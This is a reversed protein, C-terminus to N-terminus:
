SKTGSGAHGGLDAVNGGPRGPDDDADGHTQENFADRLGAHLNRFWALYPEQALEPDIEIFKQFDSQMVLAIFPQYQEDTSNFMVWDIVLEVPMGSITKKKLFDLGQKIAAEPTPEPVQQRRMDAEGPDAPRPGPGRPPTNAIFAPVVVKGIDKLADVVMAKWDGNAGAGSVERAIDIGKLLATAFHDGSNGNGQLEKLVKVAEILQQSGGGTNQLLLDRLFNNQEQMIRLQAASPSEDRPTAPTVSPAASGKKEGVRVILEDSPRTENRKFIQLHYEGAGWVDGIVQEDIERGGAFCYELGRPGMKYVKVKFNGAAGFQGLYEQVGPNESLEGPLEDVIDPEEVTEVTTTRKRAAAKKAAPKKTIM